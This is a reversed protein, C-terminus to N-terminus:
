AGFSKGCGCTRTASPNNFKFGSAELTELYDVELGEMYMASISDVYVKLPKVEWGAIPDLQPKFEYWKDMPQQGGADVTMRYQFGSCGGGVISLRLAADGVLQHAKIVAAETFTIMPLVGYPNVGFFQNIVNVLRDMHIREPVGHEGHSNGITCAEIYDALQAETLTIM